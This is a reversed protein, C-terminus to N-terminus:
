SHKAHQVILSDAATRFLRLLAGVKCRHTLDREIAALVIPADKHALSSDKALQSLLFRLPSGPPEGKADSQKRMATDVLSVAHM